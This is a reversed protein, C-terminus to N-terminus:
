QKMVQSMGIVENDANKVCVIYFGASLGSLDLRRENFSTSLVSGTLDLVETSFVDDVISLQVMGNSPNPYAKLDSIQRHEAIGSTVGDFLENVMGGISIGLNTGESNGMPFHIGGYLRSMATEEACESFNSFSRPGGYLAGYTSDTFAYNDGYLANMVAGWAGSQTSHGSVYEPFPPTGILTTWGADINEQIYQIPRLLNFEYKTKWCAVFADSLAMGMRAYAQAAFAMNENEQIMIFRLMSISHGPPTYTGAGDAWYHAIDDQEATVNNVADYVALAENHMESGVTTSFDPPAPALFGNDLYEVVFCRKDGWYPQLAVQGSLPTWMGPGTPPIYSAPFNNLQCNEAGDANAYSILTTALDNGFQESAMIVGAETGVAFEASYQARLADLELMMANPTNNFLAACLGHMAQNTVIGWHYDQGEVPTPLGNLQPLVGSFSSMGPMGHVSAEYAALGTYGLARSAVPPTFGSTAPIMDLQIRFYDHLIDGSYSDANQASGTMGLLLMIFLTLNKIM